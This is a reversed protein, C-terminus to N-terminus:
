GTADLSLGRARWRGGCLGLVTREISDGTAVVARRHRRGGRPSPSRRQSLLLRHEWGTDHRLLPQAPPETEFRTRYERALEDANLGVEAAFARLYARRFVGGPLRAFDDHEIAALATMSIKAAKAIDRLTLGRQECAQGLRLGIDTTVQDM